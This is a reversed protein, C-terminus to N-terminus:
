DEEELIEIVKRLSEWAATRDEKSVRSRKLINLAHYVCLRMDEYNEMSMVVCARM